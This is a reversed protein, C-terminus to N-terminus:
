TMSSGCPAEVYEGKCGAISVIRSRAVTWDLATVKKASVGVAVVTTLTQVESYAAGGDRPTEHRGAIVATAEVGIWSLLRRIDMAACARWDANPVKARGKGQVVAINTLVTMQSQRGNSEVHRLM